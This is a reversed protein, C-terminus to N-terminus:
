SKVSQDGRAALPGVLSAITVVTILLTAALAVHMAIVDWPLGNRYQYEGVAAQCGLLVVVGISRIPM